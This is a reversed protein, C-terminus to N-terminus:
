TVKIFKKYFVCPFFAVWAFIKSSKRTSVRLVLSQVFSEFWPHLCNPGKKGFNPCNKEIECFPCRLVGGRGVELQVNSIDFYNLILSLYHTQRWNHENITNYIDYFLDSNYHIMYWNEQNSLCCCCCCCCYCCFYVWDIFFIVFTKLVM